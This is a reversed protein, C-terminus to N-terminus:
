FSSYIVDRFLVQKVDKAIEISPNAIVGCGPRHAKSLIANALQIFVSLFQQLKASCVVDTNGVGGKIDLGNVSYRSPVKPRFVPMLKIIHQCSASINTLYLQCLAKLTYVTVSIVRKQAACYSQLRSFSLLGFHTSFPMNVCVVGVTPFHHLLEVM